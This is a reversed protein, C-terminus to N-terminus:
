NSGTTDIAEKHIWEIYPLSVVTRKDVPRKKMPGTPYMRWQPNEEVETTDPPRPRDVANLFPEDDYRTVILTAGKRDEKTPPVSYIGWIKAGFMLATFLSVGAACVLVVKFLIKIFRFM